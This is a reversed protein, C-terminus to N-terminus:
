QNGRGALLPYPNIPVADQYWGLRPDANWVAFHLHPAAPDANGTHGVTGLAQGARVVQGERLGPAYSALHAYYFIRRRDGSRVYVTNGGEESLFLKEVRGPAAAVVPTGDAAPIDIADHARAGSARAQSFTDVLKGPAVGSVPIRMPGASAPNGAFRREASPAGASGFGSLLGAGQGGESTSAGRRGAGGHDASVHGNFLWAGLAVWFASTIAITLAIARSLGPWGVQV